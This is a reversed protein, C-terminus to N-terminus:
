QGFHMPMIVHTFPTDDAPHFVAGTSQGSLEIRVQDTAIAGLIDMLFTANFALQIAEGDVTAEVDGENGGVQAAQATIHIRGGLEGPEFALRIVNASDRAFYSAMRVASRLAETNATVRTVSSRPIIKEYDPFSGELLQSVLDIDKMQFLIQNINPTLSVAIRDDDDQALRQLETLSRAPVVVRIAEELPSDLEGRRVSLRFGDASALTLMGADPDATVLIGALVPRTDDRAACFGVQGIMERIQQPDLSFRPGGEVQPLLPFDEADIGKIDAKYRDAELSLSQSRSNLSMEVQVDPLSTVFDTLLRAPVTVSGEEHIKAPIWCSLGLELNTATLKLRDGETELLINALVRLTSRTAVARGVVAIGRALDHQQCSLKM